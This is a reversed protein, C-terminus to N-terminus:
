QVVDVGVNYYRTGATAGSVIKISLLDGAAFTVSNSTDSSTRGSTTLTCTLATDVGNKRVTVTTSSAPLTTESAARLNKLTCAPMPVQVENETATMGTTAYGGAYRTLAQAMSQAQFFVACPAYVADSAGRAGHTGIMGTGSGSGADRTNYLDNAAFGVLGQTVGCPSMAGVFVTTANRRVPAVGTVAGGAGNWLPVRQLIRCASVPVEAVSETGTGSGVLHSSNLTSNSGDNYAFQMPIGTNTDGRKKVVFTFAFDTTSGIAGSVLKLSILDGDDFDVSHGTDALTTAGIGMTATLATDAGNKRVTAVLTGGALAANAKGRLETVTCAEPIAFQVLVESSQAGVGVANAYRTASASLDLAGLMMVGIYKDGQLAIALPSIKPASADGEAIALMNDRLKKIDSALVPKDVALRADPITTYTTM